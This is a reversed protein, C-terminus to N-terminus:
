PTFSEIQMAGGFLVVTGTPSVVARANTHPVKTAIETVGGSADAIDNTMPGLAKFAHTPGSAESGVILVSQGNTTFVQTFALPVPLSSWVTPTCPVALTLGADPSAGADPPANCGLNVVRVGADAGSVIGGALLVHQGDLAIAGAGSSADPSYPLPVGMTSMTSTSGGIVEVGYATASGGAVVLGTGSVWAAAAGLRASSLTIWTANGYLYAANSTDNPNIKLVMASPAGSTRTAGVIYQAGIDDVITAGGAIDSFQGDAGNPLTPLPITLSNSDSFDFYTGADGDILWSVTGDFAISQPVQPLVPPSGAPALQLFDYIQTTEADADQGGAVLLYESDFVVLTPATRMDSPPAPLRAFEGTRQVFIPMTTGALAGFNLPMSAGYVVRDGNAAIGSVTLRANTSESQKGLDITTAPLPTTALTTIAVGGDSATEVADLTLSTPVPAQTFTDTELGTVLQITGSDQSCGVCVFSSFVLLRRM